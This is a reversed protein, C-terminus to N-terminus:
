EVEQWVEEVDLKNGEGQCPTFRPVLAAASPVSVTLM